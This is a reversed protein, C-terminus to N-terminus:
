LGSNFVNLVWKIGYFGGFALVLNTISKGILSAFFFKKINYNSIGALIGVVDDPLPTAAFIVILPFAWGKEFWKATARSINEYKKEIIKKGGRGLGYGVMEGLACGLGSSFGVLWPNFIGGFTFVLAAVPLPFIITASGLLSAAFLGFYGFSVILDKAWIVFQSSDM